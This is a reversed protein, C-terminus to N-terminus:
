LTPANTTRSTIKNELLLRCVLIANPVTSRVHASGIQNGLSLGDALLTGGATANAIMDSLAAGFFGLAFITRGVEGAVPELVASFQQIKAGAPGGEGALTAAAAAIVLATM